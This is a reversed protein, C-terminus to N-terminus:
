EIEMHEKVIIDDESGFIHDSGASIIIINENTKKLRYTNGWEDKLWDKRLPRGEILQYLNEPYTGTRNKYEELSIKINMMEEKTEEPKINLDHVHDIVKYTAFGILGLFLPVIIVITLIMWGMEKGSLQQGKEKQIKVVDIVSWILAVPYLPTLGLLIMIAGKLYKEYYLQGLGPFIISLIIALM